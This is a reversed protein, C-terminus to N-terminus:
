SKTGALSTTLVSLQAGIAASQSQLVGVLVEMNLFRQILTLKRRDLRAEMAFIRSDLRILRDSLSDDKVDLLGTGADLYRDMLRELLAGTGVTLTVDGAARADTGTYSIHLGEIATDADAVLQQGSGTAAFGGITGAVDVGNYTDATIGLQATGDTGGATYAVLFGPTAGYAGHTIKVDNGVASATLQMVGRGDVAVDMAGFDLSGGGENKANLSLAILSDGTENDEVVIKGNAVSVTVESGFSGQLHSVFDGITDTAPDSVTFTGSFLTGSTLVGTYDITDGATVNAPSGGSNFLSSFTTGAVIETTAGADSYLTNATELKHKLAQQFDTNLADVIQQTTMGNSLEIQAVSGSGAETVTMTDATADDTYTGSFGSGQVSAQTAATTINVAYTGSNATSSSTLFTVEADTTSGREMFLRQLDTFRDNFADKFKTTDVELTGDAQISIGVASATAMDSAVGSVATFLTDILSSRATRLSSDGHLIPINTSGPEVVLNGKIFTVVENYAATFAQAKSVAADASRAVVVSAIVDPDATHLTFTVGSVVDTITNSSRNLTIGDVRVQADSGTIIERDRGLDDIDFTGFDLTGGGDNHAVISLTLQSDGGTGDALKIRGQADISATATRSGAGYGNTPDNIFTLLTAVTDGGGVTYDGLSITTGDGRTGTITFKDGALVGANTGGSWLNALTTATTAITSDNGDTLADGVVSQAVTARGGEVVGLLQLAKGADVFSTTGTIDVYYETTGDALTNSQVTASVGTLADIKTAIANLSDNDLDIAVSQGAITVNQSGVPDTLGLLTAVVTTKASFRDSEGGSSTAHKIQTTNDLFGLTELLGATGDVLDIGAAGSDDATLLMRYINTGSSLISATVDTPNNGANADNIKDRISLLSDTTLIQIRTGNVFFDGSLSLAASQDAFQAGGLKETQALALVEVQYAGPSTGAEAFASLIPVGAATTGTTTTSVSEFAVGTRLDKASTKFTALLSRFTQFASIRTNTNAIDTEVRSIPRREIQIIQDVLARWDFGSVVGSFFGVPEM